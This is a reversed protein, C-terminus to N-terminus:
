SLTLSLLEGLDYNVSSIAFDPENKFPSKIYCPAGASDGDILVIALFFKDPQNFGTLMENKTVTVTTAGKVRGKVEIFRLGGAPTRSTIDWGCKSASVDEPQNGLTLENAIVSQMALQEVKARAAADVAWKPVNKGQRLDILGQPIILAGGVVLPVNSAVHRRAELDKMREQLRETLEEARRKANEPQMRPQQGAQVQQELQLARHTWHNIEKVLREQVAQMSHTVIREMRDRVENFHEPVITQAAHALAVDEIDKRMWDANLVDQILVQVDEGAPEYDLYPAYGGQTVTGSADVHVFQMRRSIIRQQGHKDTGGDRISHDIIFLVRPEVGEDAPDVLLTGQKLLSRYKELTVDLLADMMPHGPCLLSALPKGQQRVKEKEFCVRDYSKLVPVSNGIVRDRGRVSAPVHKIEFRGSERQYLQSGLRTMAETFFSKIFHPQLKRAEAKEMEDRVAFLREMGMHETALATREMVEILHGEDLAGEVKEFLRARVDPSDGYRIAEILLTKLSTDSFIEGLIDFVRGGLAKREVELKEFLRQFVDGERTESAVLNWLHCVETQGIRHIRGFRQELRNPNWPLDYNVMLNARQLNVGEGAADTALM